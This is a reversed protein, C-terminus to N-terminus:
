ARLARSNLEPHAFPVRLCSIQYYSLRAPAFSGHILLNLEKAREPSGKEAVEM